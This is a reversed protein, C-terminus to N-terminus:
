DLHHKHINSFSFCYCCGRIYDHDNIDGLLGDPWFIFYHCFRCPLTYPQEVSLKTHNFRNHIMLWIFVFASQLRKQRFHTLILKRLIGTKSHINWLLEFPEHVYKCDLFYLTFSLTKNVLSISFFSLLIFVGSKALHLFSYQWIGKTFLGKRRQHHLLNIHSM